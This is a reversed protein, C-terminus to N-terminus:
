FRNKLREPLAMYISIYPFMSLVATRDDLSTWDITCGYSGANMEDQFVEDFLHDTKTDYNLAVMESGLLAGHEYDLSSASYEDLNMRMLMDCSSELWDIIEKYESRVHADLSLLLLALEYPDNVALGLQKSATEYIEKADVYDSLIAALQSVDALEDIFETYTQRFLVYTDTLHAPIELEMATLNENDGTWEDTFWESLENVEHGRLGETEYFEFIWGCQVDFDMLRLNTSRSIFLLMSMVAGVISDPLSELSFIATDVGASDLKSVGGEVSLCLMANKSKVDAFYPHQEYFSEIFADYDTEIKRQIFADIEAFKFRTDANVAKTFARVQRKCFNIDAGLQQATSIARKFTLFAHMNVTRVSTAKHITQIKRSSPVNAGAMRYKFTLPNILTPTAFRRQTENGQQAFLHASKKTDRFYGQEM